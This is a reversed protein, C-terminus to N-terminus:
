QGNADRRWARVRVSAWVTGAALGLALLMIALLMIACPAAVILVDNPKPLAV